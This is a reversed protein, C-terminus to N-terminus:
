KVMAKVMAIVANKQGDDLQRFDRILDAETETPEIKIEQLMVNGTLLDDIDVGFYQALRLADKFKPSRDGLEWSCITSRGVNMKKALEEQTLHQRERLWRINEGIRIM